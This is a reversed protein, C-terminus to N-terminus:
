NSQIENGTVMERAVSMTMDFNLYWVDETPVWPDEVPGFGTGDSNSQGAQIIIDFRENTFNRLM